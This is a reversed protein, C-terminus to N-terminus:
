AWLPHEDANPVGGQGVFRWPGGAELLPQGRHVARPWVLGYPEVLLRVRAGEAIPDEIDDFRQSGIRLCPDGGGPERLLFDRQDFIQDLGDVDDDDASHAVACRQSPQRCPRLGRPRAYQEIAVIQNEVRAKDMQDDLRQVLVHRLCNNPFSPEAPHSPDLCRHPHAVTSYRGIGVQRLPKKIRKAPLTDANDRIKQVTPLLVGANGQELRLALAV